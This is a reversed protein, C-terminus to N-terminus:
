GGAAARELADLRVDIRDERDRSRRMHALEDNYSRLIDTLLGTTRDYATALGRTDRALLDHATALTRTDRALGQIDGRLGNIADVLLHMETRREPENPDAM